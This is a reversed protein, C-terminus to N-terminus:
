FCLFVIRHAAVLSFLRLSLMSIKKPGIRDITVLILLLMTQDSWIAAMPKSAAYSGSKAYVAGRRHQSLTGSPIRCTRRAILRSALSTSPTQTAVAIQGGVTSPRAMAGSQSAGAFEPKGRCLLHQWLAGRVAVEAVAALLLELRTAMRVVVTAM